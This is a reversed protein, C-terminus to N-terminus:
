RSALASNVALAIKQAAAAIDAAGGVSSIVALSVAASRPMSTALAQCLVPRM